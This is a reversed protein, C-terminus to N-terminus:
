RTLVQLHEPLVEWLWFVVSHQGAEQVDFGARRVVEILEGFRLRTEIADGRWWPHMARGLRILPNDELTEVVFLTGGPRLCRSVERLLARSDAVHHLIHALYVMDFAENALPLSTAEGEVVPGHARAQCLRDYAVDIGLPTRGWEVFRWM